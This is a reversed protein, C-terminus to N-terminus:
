HATPHSRATSGSPAEAMLAPHESRGLGVRLRSRTTAEITTASSAATPDAQVSECGGAGVAEGVGVAVAEGGGSGVVKGGGVTVARGGGVAVAEGGGVAVAEGGGLGVVSLLMVMESVSSMTTSPSDTAM